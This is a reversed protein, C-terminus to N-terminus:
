SAMATSTWRFMSRPTTQSCARARISMPSPFTAPQATAATRASCCTSAMRRIPSATRAATQIPAPRAKQHQHLARQLDAPCRRDPHQLDHRGTSRGNAPRRRHSQRHPEARRGQRPHHHRSLGPHRRPHHNHRRQRGLPQTLSEHLDPRHDCSTNEGPSYTPFPVSQALAPVSLGTATLGVLLGHSWFHTRSM